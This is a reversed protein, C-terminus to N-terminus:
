LRYLILEYEAVVNEIDLNKLENPLFHSDFNFQKVNQNKSFEQKLLVIQSSKGIKRVGELFIINYFM